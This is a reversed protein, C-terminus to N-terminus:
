RLNGIFSMVDIPDGFHIAFSFMDQGFDIDTARYELRMYQISVHGLLLITGFGYREVSFSMTSAVDSFLSFQPALALASRGRIHSFNTAVAGNVWTDDYSAEIVGRFPLTERLGSEWKLDQAFAHVTYAGFRWYSNMQYTVGADLSLANATQDFLERRFLSFTIGVDLNDLVPYAMAIALRSNLDSFSDGAVGRSTSRDFRNETLDDAYYQSYGIAFSLNYGALVSAVRFQNYGFFDQLSDVRFQHSDAGSILSPNQFVHAVQHGPVSDFSPPSLFGEEPVFVDTAVSIVPLVFCIFFSLKCLKFLISM